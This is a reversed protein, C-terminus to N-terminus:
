RARPLWRGEYAVRTHYTLDGEPLGMEDLWAPLKPILRSLTVLGGALLFHIHAGQPTHPRVERGSAYRDREIVTVEGFHRALVCATTLGAIGGGLVLARRGKKSHHAITM